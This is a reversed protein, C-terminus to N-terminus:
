MSCVIPWQQVFREAKAGDLLQEDLTAPDGYTWKTVPDVGYDDVLNAACPQETLEIEDNVFYLFSGQSKRRTNPRAPQTTAKIPSHIVTSMKWRVPWRPAALAATNKRKRWMAKKLTEQSAVDYM